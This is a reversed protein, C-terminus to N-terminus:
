KELCASAQLADLTASAAPQGTIRVFRAANVSHCGLDFEANLATWIGVLAWDLGDPSVEVSFAGRGLSSQPCQGGAATSSSTVTGILSFDAAGATEGDFIQRGVALILSTNETLAASKGDSPGLALNADDIGSSGESSAANCCSCDEPCIQCDEDAIECTGNGCSAPKNPLRILPDGQDLCSALLGCIALLALCRTKM